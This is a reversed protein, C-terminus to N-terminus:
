LLKGQAGESRDPTKTKKAKQPADKAKARFSGDSLDVRIDQGASVQSVSRITKGADDRLLAFGRELVSHHSLVRLSKAEKELQSGSQEARRTIAGRLRPSLYSIQERRRILLSMLHGASLRGTSRVLCTRKVQLHARLGSILRTHATDVRQRPLALLDALRPLAKSFAFIDRKHQEIKHSVTKVIRGSLMDVTAVLDLKVPVAMEAAATPTPSRVDAVYDILTTDTEHGVASILPIKSRAAARAVSEENFSWLDEISGGGRAVIILDPRKIDGGEKLANFGDIARAVEEASTEGQVRVPWVTVPTPFRDALRHLIDRIVAGTPSTIVGISRPLFPLPQKRAEDFLGEAALKKKREELLAMLAGLGAPEMREIVLQYKSQGPYTTLKGTAIVELGQEPQIALGHSVGRWIVAGLVSKEDKLDLYIHGSAPRAIRGLEGRVRVHDFAAEVTKKLALSLESVTFEPNNGQDTSPETM